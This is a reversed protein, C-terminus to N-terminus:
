NVPRVCSRETSTRPAASTAATGTHARKCASVSPASLVVYTYTDRWNAGTLGNAAQECRGYLSVTAPDLINPAHEFGEAIGSAITQLDHPEDCSVRRETEAGENLSWKGPDGVHCSGIPPVATRDEPPTTPSGTPDAALSSRPTLAPQGITAMILAAAALGAALWAVRVGPVPITITRSPM